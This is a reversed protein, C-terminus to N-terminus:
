WSQRRVVELDLVLPLLRLLFGEAVAEVEVLPGLVPQDLKLLLLHQLFGEVVAEVVVLQHCVPLALPQELLVQPVLLDRELLLLLRLLFGEAGVGVAGRLVLQRERVVVALLELLVPGLVLLEVVQRVLALRVELEPGRLVLLVVELLLHIRGM